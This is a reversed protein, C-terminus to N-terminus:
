QKNRKWRNQRHHEYFKMVVDIDYYYKGFHFERQMGEHVLRDTMPKSIGFISNLEEITFLDKNVLILEDIEEMTFHPRNNIRVGMGARDFTKIIKRTSFYLGWTELYEVVETTNYLKQEM